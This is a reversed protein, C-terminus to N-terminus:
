DNKVMKSAYAEVADDRTEYGEIVGFDAIIFWEGIAPAIDIIDGNKSNVLMGNENEKWGECIKNLKETTTM